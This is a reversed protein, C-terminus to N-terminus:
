RQHKSAVNIENEWAASHDALRKLAVQKARINDNHKIRGRLARGLAAVSSIWPTSADKVVAHPKLNPWKICRSNGKGGNCNTEFAGLYSHTGDSTILKLINQILHMPDTDTHETEDDATCKKAIAQLSGINPNGGSAWANTGAKGKYCIDNVQGNTEVECVCAMDTLLRNPRNNGAGATCTAERSSCGTQGAGFLDTIAVTAITKTPGGLFLEKLKGAPDASDLIPDAPWEPTEEKTIERAKAALLAVQAKTTQLKTPPLKSYFNVGEKAKGPTTELEKIATLWDQFM